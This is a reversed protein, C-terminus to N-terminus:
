GNCESKTFKRSKALFQQAPASHPAQPLQFGSHVPLPITIPLCRYVPDRFGRRAAGPPEPRGRAAGPPEPRGRAAMPPPEQGVFFLCTFM